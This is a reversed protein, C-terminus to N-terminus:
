RGTTPPIFSVASRGTVRGGPDLEIRENAAVSLRLSRPDAAPRHLVLEGSVTAPSMGIVTRLEGAQDTALRWGRPFAYRLAGDCHVEVREDDAALDYARGGVRRAYATAEAAAGHDLRTPPTGTFWVEGDPRPLVGFGREVTDLFWLISPSYVSTFGPAGSWPDLCQPFRDATAMAALAPATAVALEAVHGHHEFAHPARLMSLLNVPGGWSNRSADADFRPDDLALSTFGYHALFKRTNMLYARLARAFFPEDGVECALVRLLVDSQVRVHEGTRDRDYFCGDADDLCETHLAHLAARARHRWPEGDGGLAEAIRALYTRQCAANATLDPALYPLTPSDPDCRRADGRFARDPAFWFRPSLDHGTDFTCFAEVAGTGRTDRFRALWDDFRAMARYMTELFARDGTRRHHNWVTRALPTVIQIQSFGPGADTVKYPIMGDDRQREAFLLHTDRAIGPAFRALVEANITGTSEIWAGPYVGGETLVPASGDLPRVCQALETLAQHWRDELPGGVAAFAVGAAALEGGLGSGDIRARALPDTERLRALAAQIKTM